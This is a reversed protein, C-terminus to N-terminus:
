PEIGTFVLKGHKVGKLSLLKDALEKIKRAEGKVAITEMCHNHDIHIHMTSIINELYGHEIDTIKEVLEKQHHDYVLTITGFAFRNEELSEEILAKRILDRVAESRSLYGKREMLREFRKFLKEDLSVTFRVLKGM